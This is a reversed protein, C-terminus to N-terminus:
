LERYSDPFAILEGSRKRPFSTLGRSKAFEIVANTYQNPIASQIEPACIKCIMIEYYASRKGDYIHNGFQFENGCLDCTAVTKIKSDPM